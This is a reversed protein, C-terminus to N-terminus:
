KAKLCKSKIFHNEEFELELIRRSLSDILSKNTLEETLKKNSKMLTITYKVLKLLFILNKVM